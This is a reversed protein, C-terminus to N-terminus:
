LDIQHAQSVWGSGLEFNLLRESPVTKRIDDYHKLYVGKANKKIGDLTSARFYGGYLKRSATGAPYGGILEASKIIFDAIPNYLRPLLVEAFSTYWKDVDRQVLVVKAEPYLRVLDDWFMHGPIDTVAGWNGYLQDWDQRTYPQGEGFFKADAARDWHVSEEAHNLIRLGHYAPIGLIEYAAAM